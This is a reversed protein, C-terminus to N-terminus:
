EDTLWHQDRVMIKKFKQDSVLSIMENRIRLAPKCRVYGWFIDYTSNGGEMHYFWKVM